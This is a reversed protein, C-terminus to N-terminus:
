LIDTCHLCHRNLITEIVSGNEPVVSATLRNWLHTTYAEDIIRGLLEKEEDQQKDTPAVFYRSIKSSPIPFFAFPEQIQLVDADEIWRKGGKGISSNAVRTVLEAGNWELLTDDYTATFEELCQRLFPSSKNFAMIAGNLRIEGNALIESGMTNSLSDLPKLVIVDMDMYLGGYKYLAVL